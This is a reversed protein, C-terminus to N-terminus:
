GGTGSRLKALEALTAERSPPGAVKPATPASVGSPALTTAPRTPAAAIKPAANAAPRQHFSKADIGHEELEAIREAEYARLVESETPIDRLDHSPGSQVYLRDAIELLRQHTREPNKTLAARVFPTEDNAAKTVRRLYGDIQAQAQAQQERAQTSQELADLKSQLADLKTQQERQALTQHATAKHAPNKQGEPSHAYVLRGLGDFDAETFGLAALAAMPDKRADSITKQLADAKDLKTQWTSKDREFNALLESREAALQRRM